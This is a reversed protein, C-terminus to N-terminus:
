MYPIVKGIHIKQNIEVDYGLDFWNEGMPRDPLTEALQDYMQTMFSDVSYTDQRSGSKDKGFRLDLTLATGKRLRGPGVGLLIALCKPGIAKELFSYEVSPGSGAMSQHMEAPFSGPRPQKITKQNQIM